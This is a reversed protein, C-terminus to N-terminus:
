EYSITWCFTILCALLILVGLWFNGVIDECGVLLIFSLGMLCRRIFQRM